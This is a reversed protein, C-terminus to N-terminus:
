RRWQPNDPLEEYAEKLVQVVELLESKNWYSTKHLSLLEQAFESSMGLKELKELHTQPKDIPLPKIM